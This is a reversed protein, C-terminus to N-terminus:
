KARRVLQAIAHLSRTAPTAVVEELLKLHSLVEKVTAFRFEALLRRLRSECRHLNNYHRFRSTPNARIRPQAPDIEWPHLYFIFPYRQGGNIAKLATRTVVYPFLRFYGGGAVPMRYGLIKLTSLPFEVLRHGAPTRLRYPLPPASPIGYLDHRIPFVSSDYHFGLEALIDLAWRSRETISYSAARYGVVPRQALDELIEKARITEGRFQQPTQNYVLQHSYGHCAVEHGEAAIAKVLKPYRQAVWGLVFFTGRIGHEGIIDLLRYTNQEVRSEYGDWDEIKVHRAFATVHYYDEVDVTLANIIQPEM